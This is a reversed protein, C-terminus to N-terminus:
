RVDIIGADIYGIMAEDGTIHFIDFDVYGKKKTFAFNKTEHKIETDAEEKYQRYHDLVIRSSAEVYQKRIYFIQNASPFYTFTINNIRNSNAVILDYVRVKDDKFKSSELDDNGIWWSYWEGDLAFTFQDAIAKKTAPTINKLSFEKEISSLIKKAQEPITSEEDLALAMSSFSFMLTFIALKFTKLM